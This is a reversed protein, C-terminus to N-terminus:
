QIVWWGKGQSILYSLSFKEYSFNRHSSNPDNVYYNGESDMGTIVIFHGKRTFKGPKCSMIVPHGTGLYGAIQGASIQKGTYGYLKAVASFFNWSTGSGPIHYPNRGGNNARITETIDVPSIYGGNLYTLVMSASACACGSSAMTSGAVDGYQYQAWSISGSQPMYPVKNNSGNQPITCIALDQETMSGSSYSVSTMAEYIRDAFERRQALEQYPKGLVTPCTAITHTEDSCVCIEVKAAWVDCALRVDTMTKINGQYGPVIQKLAANMDREFRGQTLEYEIMALQVDLDTWDKGMKKAINQLNTWRGGGWQVIGYHGAYKETPDFHSEQWINGCFGAAAEPSYGLDTFFQFIKLLNQKQENTLGELAASNFAYSTGSYTKSPDWYLPTFLVDKLDLSNSIRSKVQFAESLENDEAYATVTFLSSLSNGINQGITTIGGGLGSSGKYQEYLGDSYTDYWGKWIKKLPLLQKFAAEPMYSTKWILQQGNTLAPDLNAFLDTGDEPYSGSLLAFEIAEFRKIVEPDWDQTNRVWSDTKGASLRALALNMNDTRSLDSHYVFANGYVDMYMASDDQRLVNNIEKPLKSDEWKNGYKDLKYNEPDNPDGNKDIISSAWNKPTIAGKIGNLKVGSNIQENGGIRKLTGSADIYAGYGAGAAENVADVDVILEEEAKDPSLGTNEDVANLDWDDTEVYVAYFDLDVNDMIQYSSGGDFIKDSDEYNYENWGEFDCGWLIAGLSKKLQIKEGPVAEVQAYLEGPVNDTAFYTPIDIPYCFRITVPDDTVVHFEYVGPKFKCKDGAKFLYRKENEDTCAWYIGKGTLGSTQESDELHIYDAPDPMTFEDEETLEKDLDVVDELDATYFYLYAHESSPTDILNEGTLAPNDSKVRFYHEGPKFRETDGTKYQGLDGDDAEEEWYIGKVQDYFESYILEGDVGEQPLYRYENPDAFKYEKTLGDSKIRLKKELEEIEEGDVTYFYLHAYKDANSDEAFAHVGSLFFIGILIATFCVARFIRQYTQKAYELM